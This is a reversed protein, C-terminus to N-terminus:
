SDEIIDFNDDSDENDESEWNYLKPSQDTKSM